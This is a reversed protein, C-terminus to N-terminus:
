LVEDSPGTNLDRTTASADWEEGIVEHSMVRWWCEDGSMDDSMMM